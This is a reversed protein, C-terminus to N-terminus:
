TVVGCDVWEDLPPLVPNGQDDIPARLEFAWLLTTIAIWLGQEAFHM